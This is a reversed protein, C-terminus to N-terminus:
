RGLLHMVVTGVAQFFNSGKPRLLSFPQTPDGIFPRLVWGLQAGVVAVPTATDVDDNTIARGIILEFTQGSVCAIMAGLVEYAMNSYAFREGPASILKECSLSRVYRELADFRVSMGALPILWVSCRLWAAGMLLYFVLYTPSDRVDAARIEVNLTM